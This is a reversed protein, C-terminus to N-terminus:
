RGDAHVRKLAGWSLSRTPTPDDNSLVLDDFFVEIGGIDFRFNYVGFWGGVIEPDVIPTGATVETGDWYLTFSSGEARVAMSHWTDTSPFGGPLDTTFWTGLTTPTGNVLKRFSLQLLGPQLVWQYCTAFQNSPDARLVLGRRSDGSGTFIQGEWLGDSEGSPDTCSLAIGGQDPIANTLRGATHDGSPNAYAPHSPVLTIGELNNPVGFGPVWVLDLSGGTVHEELLVAAKSDQWGWLSAATLLAAVTAQKM